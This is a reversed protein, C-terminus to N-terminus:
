SKKELKKYFDQYKKIVTKFAELFKRIDQERTYRGISIRITGFEGNSIEGHKLAALVYSENPDDYKCATKSSVEIDLADLELVFLDSEIKPYSINLIGPIKSLLSGHVEIDPFNTQLGLLLIDHLKSIREKEKQRLNVVDELARCLGAILPLSHTGPRYGWEQNGGYFLPELPIRKRKVLLGVGKPGYIKGANCSLMDVGIKEINLDQYLIAQSADTHVLPYVAHVNQLIHKKYHRIIKVIENVPQITGIENNVYMVSILITEPTINKKLEDLLIIGDKDIGIYSVKAEGTNELFQVTELVAPHEISSVIIHPTFGPNQKKFAFFSGLIALNDSETGGSTFIIEESSVNFVKGIKLRFSELKQRSIVSGKYLGNPNHFFKSWFPNMARKVEKSVPTTSAYDLYIRNNRSLFNM